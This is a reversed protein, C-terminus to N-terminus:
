DAAKALLTELGNQVPVELIEVLKARMAPDGSPVIARVEDIAKQFSSPTAGALQVAIKLADSPSQQATEVDVAVADLAAQYRSWPPAPPPPGKEGDKVAPAEERLVEDVMAVWAPRPAGERPLEAKMEGSARRLLAPYPSDKIAGGATPRVPTNLVFREW